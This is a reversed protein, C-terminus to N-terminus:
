AVRALKGLGVVKVALLLQPVYTVSTIDVQAILARILRTHCADVAKSVKVLHHPIYVLLASLYLCSFDVWSPEKILLSGSSGATDKMAPLNEKLAVSPLDDASPV